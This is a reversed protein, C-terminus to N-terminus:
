GRAECCLGNVGDCDRVRGVDDGGNVGDEEPLEDGVHVGRWRSTNSDGEFRGLGDDDCGVM